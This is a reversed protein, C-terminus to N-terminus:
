IKRHPCIRPFGILRLSGQMCGLFSIEPMRETQSDYALWGVVDLGGCNTRSHIPGQTKFGVSAESQDFESVVRCKSAPRPVLM